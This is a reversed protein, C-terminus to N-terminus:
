ADDVAPPKGDHTEDGAGDYSHEDGDATPLGPLGPRQEVEALRERGRAATLDLTEGRVRARDALDDARLERELARRAGAPEAHALQPAVDRRLRHRARPLRAVLRREHLAGDVPRRPDLDLLSSESACFTSFLLTTCGAAAERTVAVLRRLEASMPASIPSM